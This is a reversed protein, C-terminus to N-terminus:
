AALAPTLNSYHYREFAAPAVFGIASHRRKRNYFVEIWEAIALQASTKTTFIINHILETKLTSFFSEAVANDWCNARRSMSPTIGANRLALQYAASAYQSGRDSHFLLGSECPTRSGLAAGLAELVLETRMHDAVSWGVIRRSFLDIVVALYLWGEATWIYTIDGVWARDPQAVEFNRQLVNAATPMDHNSDTTRRFKPKPRVSLGNEAMLRAVRNLGVDFGRAVLEAHIRPSGYTRRSAEFVERVAELLTQNQRTRLSAGRSRWGYYGSSSVGLCRCM